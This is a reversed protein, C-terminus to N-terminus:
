RERGEALLAIGLKEAREIVRDVISPIDAGIAASEYEPQEYQRIRASSGTQADAILAIAKAQEDYWSIPEVEARMREIAVAGNDLLYYDRRAKAGTNSVRKHTVLGLSKLISLANDVREYAGYLYRAMPYRHLTPASGALMRVVHPEVDSLTLKGLEFDSLLEDALYDPNRMWFDIKELRTLSRIVKVATPFGPAHTVPTGLVDLSVLLRMATQSATGGGGRSPLSRAAIDSIM